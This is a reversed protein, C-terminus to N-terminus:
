RMIIGLQRANTCKHGDVIVVQYGHIVGNPGRAIPTKNDTDTYVNLFPGTGSFQVEFPKPNPQGEVHATYAIQTGSPVDVVLTGASNQYCASTVPNYVINVNTDAEASGALLLLASGILTLASWGHRPLM